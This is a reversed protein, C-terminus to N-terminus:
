EGLRVYAEDWSPKGTQQWTVFRSEAIRDHYRGMITAHPRAEVMRMMSAEDVWSSLTFFRGRWVHAVLALGIAGDSTRVQRHIRLADVFFAPADRRSKLELRSALVLSLGTTTTRAPLWPLSPM